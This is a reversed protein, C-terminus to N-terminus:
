RTGEVTQSEYEIADKTHNMWIQLIAPTELLGKEIMTSNDCTYGMRYFYHKWSIDAIDEDRNTEYGAGMGAMDYYVHDGCIALLPCCFVKGTAIGAAQMREVVHTKDNSEVDITGVFYNSNYQQLAAELELLRVNASYSDYGNPNGHAMFAVVGESAQQSYISHLQRAVAPVDTYSDQLLPVGLKITVRSLYANDLNGKTNNIFDGIDNALMAFNDCPLILLSQVIIEDYQIGKAAFANLWIHPAHFDRPYTNEGMRARNICIASSFALFVDYDPFNKKYAAVAVDYADYAQQWTSGFAVLLIVKNHKKEVKVSFTVSGQETREPLLEDLIEEGTRGILRHITIPQEEKELDLFTATGDSNLIISAESTEQIGKEEFVMKLHNGNLTFTFPVTEVSKTWNTSATAEHLTASATGDVNLKLVQVKVKSLSMETFYWSGVIDDLALDTGSNEEFEWTIRQITSVPLSLLAGDNLRVKMMTQATATIGVVLETVFLSLILFFRKM